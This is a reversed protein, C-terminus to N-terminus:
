SYPAHPFNCLIIVIIIFSSGLYLQSTSGTTEGAVHVMDLHRAWWSPTHVIACCQFGLRTCCHVSPLYWSTTTHKHTVVLLTQCVHCDCVNTTTLLDYSFTFLIGAANWGNATAVFKILQWQAPWHRSRM